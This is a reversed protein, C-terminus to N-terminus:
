RVRRQQMWAGFVMALLLWTRPEPVFDLGETFTGQATFSRITAGTPDVEFIQNLGPGDTDVSIFFSSGTYALGLATEGVSTSVSGLLTGDLAYSHVTGSRGLAFLTGAGNDDLGGIKETTSFSSTVAQSVPDVFLIVDFSPDSIVLTGDALVTLGESNVGLLDFSDLVAGSTSINFVTSFQLANSSDVVWLSDGSPDVAVADSNAGPGTFSDIVAGTAADLSYIASTVGDPSDSAWLTTALAPLAPMNMGGLIVVLLAAVRLRDRRM